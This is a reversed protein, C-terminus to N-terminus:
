NDVFNQDWCKKPDHNRIDQGFNVAVKLALLVSVWGPNVVQYDQENVASILTLITGNNVKGLHFSATNGFYDVEFLKPPNYNLIRGQYTWGNIFEFNIIGDKEVAKEAWFASRGEDTSLYPFVEEPSASLFVKWEVKHMQNTDNLKKSMTICTNKNDSSQDKKSFDSSSILIILIFFLLKKM